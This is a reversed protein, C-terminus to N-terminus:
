ATFTSATVSGARLNGIFCDYTIWLRDALREFAGSRRKAERNSKFCGNRYAKAASKAFM